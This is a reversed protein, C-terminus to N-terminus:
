VSIDGVRNLPIQFYAREPEVTVPTFVSGPRLARAHRARSNIHDLIKRILGPDTVDAIVRLQGGATPM